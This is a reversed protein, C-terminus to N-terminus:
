RGESAWQQCRSDSDYCVAVLTKHVTIKRCQDCIKPCHDRMFSQYKACGEKTYWQYCLGNRLIHLGLIICSNYINKRKMLKSLKYEYRYLDDCDPDVITLTEIQNCSYLKNLKAIDLESFGRRQGLRPYGRIPVITERGNSSFAKSDYHM